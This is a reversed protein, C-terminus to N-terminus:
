IVRDNGGDIPVQAGTIKAFAPGAMACVLAAVDDSTVDVGLVNSKKYEEVSIGYRKAREELVERTWIATDFVHNPHLTNVRSGAAGLELAAVRALQTLGAKAVSYAAAGRGPAPVNKSGVIVVSPDIGLELYPICARLVNQHGSLNIALSRQWADDSMNAISQSSPFIGANSVLIDLGGFMRVTDDIARKVDGKSTIDCFSGVIGKEDFVRGINGDIDVAAVAAGRRHLELACARGIGSAGGTVLAVRGSFDDAELAPMKSRYLEWYEVDFVHSESLPNWGGLAEARQIALMTHRTIDSVTDAEGVSRGFAVSGHGPWVIWRPAPDLQKIGGSTNRDFYELYAKAYDSVDTEPDGGAIMPIRKTRSVHDPTLPGRTAVTDVNPLNAFAVAEPGRDLRAIMASGSAWSVSQRMRALGALDEEAPAGAAVMRGHKEVYDQAESVIAIMRDYSAKADDAFTVVGHGFLIIGELDQWDADRTMEFVRKALTFGPKVYPVTLVRRGYIDAIREDGDKSNAITIVADAHTHDVYRCPILAHLLAELSPNPAAPDAMASRQLKVIDADSLQELAVMRKLVDLKVAAFGSAGITALDQGSGKICLYEETDGLLNTQELKVSTNGGGHLVLTRDQGLLRSTYIRLLLPDDSHKRADSDNWLNDM